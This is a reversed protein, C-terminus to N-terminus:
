DKKLQKFTYIRMIFHSNIMDLWNPDYFFKREYWNLYGIDEIEMFLNFVRVDLKWYIVVIGELHLM